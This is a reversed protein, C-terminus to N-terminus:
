LFKTIERFLVEVFWVQQKPDGRYRILFMVKRRNWRKLKVIEPYDDFVLIPVHIEEPVGEFQEPIVSHVTFIDTPYYPSRPYADTYFKAPSLYNLQFAWQMPDTASEARAVVFFNRDVQTIWLAFQLILEYNCNRVILIPEGNSDMGPLKTVNRNSQEVTNLVADNYYDEYRDISMIPVPSSYDHLDVIQLNHITNLVLAKFNPENELIKYNRHYHRM